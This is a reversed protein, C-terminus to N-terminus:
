HRDRGKGNGKGKAKGREGRDDRDVYVVDGQKKALGPPGGHPHRKWHKAPVSFVAAPVARSEIAVYPGRWDRARYWWGRHYTWWWGGYRFCDDDWRSDVVVFVRTDPVLTVRPEERVVIVPPPPPTGIQVQIGVRTEASVNTSAALSLAILGLAIRRM